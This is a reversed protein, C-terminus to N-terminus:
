GPAPRQPSACERCTGSKESRTRISSWPALTTPISAKPLSLRMTLVNRPEYGRDVREVRLLTRVLLGAGALLVM